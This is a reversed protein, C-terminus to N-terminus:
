SITKLQSNHTILQRAHLLFSSDQIRLLLNGHGELESSLVELESSM